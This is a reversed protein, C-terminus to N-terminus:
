ANEVAERVFCIDIYEADVSECLEELVKYCANEYAYVNDEVSVTISNVIWDSTYRWGVELLIEKPQEVNDSILEVMEPTWRYYSEEPTDLCFSGDNYVEIVEFTRGCYDLMGYVVLNIGYMGINLDTRITVYDGVKIEM